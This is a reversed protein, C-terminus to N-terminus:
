ILLGPNIEMETSSIDLSKSITVISGEMFRAVSIIGFFYVYVILLFIIPFVKVLVVHYNASLISPYRSSM